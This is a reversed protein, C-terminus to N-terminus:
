NTPVRKFEILTARDAALFEDLIRLRELVEVLGADITPHEREVSPRDTTISVLRAM